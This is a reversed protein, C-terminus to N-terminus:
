TNVDDLVAQQVEPSFAMSLHGIGNFVVERAGPLQASDRSVVINDHVSIYTSLILAEQRANLEKLWRNGPHMQQMNRGPLLRALITGHHPCGITILKDVYRGGYRAVYARCVLGGMSHAVLVIKQRGAHSCVETIRQALQGAHEDIDHIPPDLNMTYLASMGRNSLYRKYQLWFGANAYFGHVFLVPAGQTKAIPATADHENLLAEFPHYFFFLKISASIERVIMEVIQGVSLSIRQEHEPRFGRFILFGSIAILCRIGIVLAISLLIGIWMNLGFWWTSVVSYIVLQLVIGFLIHRSVSSWRRTSM